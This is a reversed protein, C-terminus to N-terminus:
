FLNSKTSQAPDEAAPPSGSSSAPSKKSANTTTPSTANNDNIALSQMEDAPLSNDIQEDNGPVSSM